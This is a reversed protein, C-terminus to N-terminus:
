GNSKSFEEYNAKMTKPYMPNQERWNGGNYYTTFKEWDKERLGELAKRKEPKKLFGRFLKAQGDISKLCADVMDSPSAFGCEKYYEGLVQFAGWSASMIAADKDLEAAKLLRVYEGEERAYGGPQPNCIDPFAAYPHTLREAGAKGNKANPDTLAYFRHREFLIKPLKNAFYGGDGSETRTVAKIAAFECKFEKAMEEYISDSIDTSIPYNLRAGLLSLVIQTPRGTSVAKYHHEITIEAKKKGSKEDVVENKTKTPFDKVVRGEETIVQAVGIFPALDGFLRASTLVEGVAITPIAVDEVQEKGPLKTYSELHLEPSRITYINIDKQPKAVHKLDYEGSRKKVSIRIEEGRLADDITAALGKEDTVFEKAFHASTIRVSLGSIPKKILDVFVATVTVQPNVPEAPKKAPAAKKGATV